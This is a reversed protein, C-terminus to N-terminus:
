PTFWKPYEAGALTNSSFNPNVPSHTNLSTHSINPFYNELVSFILRSYRHNSGNKKGKM